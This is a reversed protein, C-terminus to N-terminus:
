GKEASVTLPKVRKPTPAGAPLDSGPAPDRPRGGKKASLPRLFTAMVRAEHPSLYKGNSLPVQMLFPVLVKKPLSKAGGLKFHQVVM